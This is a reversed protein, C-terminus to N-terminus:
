NPFEAKSVAWTRGRRKWYQVLGSKHVTKIVVAGPLGAHDKEVIVAEGEAEDLLTDPGALRMVQEVWRKLEAIREQRTM